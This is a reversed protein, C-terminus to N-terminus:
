KKIQFLISDVIFVSSFIILPHINLSSSIASNHNISFISSSSFFSFSSKIPM